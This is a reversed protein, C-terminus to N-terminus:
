GARATISAFVSTRTMCFIARSSRFHSAAPCCTRGSSDLQPEETRVPQERFHHIPASGGAASPEGGGRRPRQFEGAYGFANRPGEAHLAAVRGSEGDRVRLRLARLVM